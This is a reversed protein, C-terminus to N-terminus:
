QIELLSARLAQPDYLPIKRNAAVEQATFPALDSQQLEFNSLMWNMVEALAADSIPAQAAGPVRVLYSRGAPFSAFYDLTLRLDPVDPPSSSGNELHCGSCYLLYDIRADAIAATSVPLLSALTLSWALRVTALRVEPRKPQDWCWHLPAIIPM